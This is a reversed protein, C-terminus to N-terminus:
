SRPQQAAPGQWMGPNRRMIDEFLAVRHLLDQVYRDATPTQLETGREDNNNWAQVVRLPLDNETYRPAVSIVFDILSRRAEIAAPAASLMGINVNLAGIVAVDGNQMQFSRAIADEYANRDHAEDDYFYTVEVGELAKEYEREVHKARNESMNPDILWVRRIPWYNIGPAVPPRRVNATYVRAADVARNPGGRLSLLTKLTRLEHVGAGVSLLVITDAWPQELVQTILANNWRDYCETQAPTGV